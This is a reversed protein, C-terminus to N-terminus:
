AEQESIIDLEQNNIEFGQHCCSRPNEANYNVCGKCSAFITEAKEADEIEYPTVVGPEFANKVAQLSGNKVWTFIKAQPLLRHARDQAAQFAKVGGGVGRRIGNSQYHPNTIVTGIEVEDELDIGDLQNLFAASVIHKELIEDDLVQDGFIDIHVGDKPHGVIMVGRSGLTDRWKDLISEPSQYNIQGPPANKTWASIIRAIAESNVSNGRPVVYGDEVVDPHDEKERGIEGLSILRVQKNGETTM